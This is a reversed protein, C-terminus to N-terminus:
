EQAELARLVAARDIKGNGTLPLTEVVKVERPVMYPPLREAVADRIAPGTMTTGQVFGILGVAGSATKPWGLAVAAPASASSRLAAEVEGLEVRHGLIKVQDDLRGLFVIPGGDVPRAVRDGTRYYVEPRGGFCVFSAATKAPEGLYGRSVQPGGV